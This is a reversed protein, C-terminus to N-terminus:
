YDSFVDIEFTPIVIKMSDIYKQDIVSIKEFSSKFTDKLWASNWITNNPQIVTNCIAVTYSAEGSLTLSLRQLWIEIYEVNPINEIKCRIDNLLEECIENNNILSFIHSIISVGVPIAKPSSIIINTVISIIQIYDNPLNNNNSIRKALVMLASVISGSNPYKQALDYIQLLHKQISLNYVAKGTSDINFLYPQKAGWFLKDEKVALGIIDTTIETKKSNFHLNLESLIDSLQRLINESVEKSNSFIRYDDRYRIIQFKEVVNALRESLQKDAYGLILEAIIDFLISGQPIGNTQGFQLEQVLKDLSNGINNENRNEKSYNRGHFAWAISHTYISGYCNTIDTKICYKYTLSYQISLQELNKWWNLITEAKDSKEGLSEVPLSICKIRSDKQYEIFKEVIESWNESLFNVLNVCAIPHIISIPRWDYRGDKNMLLTYNADATNFLSQKTKALNTLSNKAALLKDSYELISSFDFYKPLNINIYSEPKLLFKKIELENMDLISIRSNNKNM